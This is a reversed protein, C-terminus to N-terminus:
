PPTRSPQSTPLDGTARAQLERWTGTWPENRSDTAKLLGSGTRILFLKSKARTIATYLVRRAELGDIDLWPTVTSQWGGYLVTVNDFECGQSSHITIAHGYEFVSWAQGKNNFYLEYEAGEARAIRLYRGHDYFNGASSHYAWNLMSLPFIVGNGSHSILLRGYGKPVGQTIGGDPIILERGVTLIEGNFFRDFRRRVLLKDGEIVPPPQRVNSLGVGRLIRTALARQWHMPAIVADSGLKIRQWWERPIDRLGCTRLVIDGYVGDDYGCPGKRLPTAFAAISGNGRMIKTLHGSTPIDDFAGAEGQIPPLQFDDGLLLIPISGGHNDLWKREPRSLQSFEDVVLLGIKDTAPYEQDDNLVYDDDM